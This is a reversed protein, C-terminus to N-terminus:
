KVGAGDIGANMGSWAGFMALLFFAAFVALSVGLTIWCWTKANRSAEAAAAPNGADLHPQVRSAYVIAVIGPAVGICSCFLGFLTLLIAAVLHNPVPPVYPGDPSAPAAFDPQGPNPRGCRPCVPAIDAVPQGCAPCSVLPMATSTSPSFTWGVKTGGGGHHLRSGDTVQNRVDAAEMWTPRRRLAESGISREGFPAM